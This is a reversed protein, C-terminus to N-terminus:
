VKNKLWTVIIVRFLGFAFALRPKKTQGATRRKITTSINNIRYGKMITEVLIEPASFKKERLKIKKLIQPNFARLGNTCDSIESKCFFNIMNTFFHIGVLRETNVYEQNGTFRSGVTMDCTNLLIPSVLNKLDSIDHQGDADFTVIVTPNHKSAFNIGTILASGQGLNTEHRLCYAGNQIAIKYTEDTSGDDIVIKSIKHDLIESPIQSLVKPLSKVENLAPIILVISDKIENANQKFNSIAIDSIIRNMDLSMNKNKSIQTYIVYLLVLVTIILLFQARNELGFINLFNDLISPEICILIIIIWFILFVIYFQNSLKHEWKLKSSYIVVILSITILALRPLLYEEVM